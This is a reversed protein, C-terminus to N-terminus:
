AMSDVMGPGLFMYWQAPQLECTLVQYGVPGSVLEGVLTGVTTTLVCCFLGCLGCLPVELVYNQYGSHLSNRPEM